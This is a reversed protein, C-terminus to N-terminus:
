KKSINNLYDWEASTLSKLGSYSIKDLIEDLNYNKEITSIHPEFNFIDKLKEKLFDNVMGRNKNKYTEISITRSKNLDFLHKFLEDNLRTGFIRPTNILVYSLIHNSFADDLFKNIDQLPERSRFHAIILNDHHIYKLQSGEMAVSLIEIVEELVVTIHDFDGILFLLYKKKRKLPM